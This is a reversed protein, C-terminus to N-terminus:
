LLSRIFTCLAKGFFVKHKAMKEDWLFEVFTFGERDPQHM